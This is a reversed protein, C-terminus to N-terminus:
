TTIVTDAHIGASSPRSTVAVSILPRAVEDWVAKPGQTTVVTATLERELHEWVGCVQWSCFLAHIRWWPGYRDPVDRWPCGARARYRVGDLTGRLCYRRPRGSVPAEPLLPALVEWQADTLDHRCGAGAEIRSLQPM